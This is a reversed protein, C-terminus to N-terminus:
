LKWNESVDGQKTGNTPLVRQEWAIFDIIVGELM